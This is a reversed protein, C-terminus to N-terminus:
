ARRLVSFLFCSEESNWSLGIEDGAKLGRRVVFGPRWGSQVVYMGNSPWRCIVVRHESFGTDADKILVQVKEGQSINQVEVPNWHFHLTAIHDQNLLLRCLHGIDSTTLTKVIHWGPPPPPHEDELQPRDNENCLKFFDIEQCQAQRIPRQIITFYLSPTSSARQGQM